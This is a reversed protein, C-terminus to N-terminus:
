KGGGANGGDDDDDYYDDRRKVFAGLGFAVLVLGFCAAFGFWAAFGVHEFAFHFSRPFVFELVVSAAMVAGLVIWAGKM